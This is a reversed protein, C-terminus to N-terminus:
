RGVIKSGVRREGLEEATWRMILRIKEVDGDKESCRV